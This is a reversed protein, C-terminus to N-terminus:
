KWMEELSVRIGQSSRQEIKKRLFDIKSGNKSFNKFEQVLISFQRNTETDMKYGTVSDHFMNIKSDRCIVKNQLHCMLCIITGIGWAGKWLHFDEYKQKFHKLFQQFEKAIDKHVALYWYDCIVAPKLLKDQFIENAITTRSMTWAAKGNYEPSYIGINPNDQLVQKTREYLSIYDEYGIDAFIINMYDYNDGEFRKFAEWTQGYLWCDDGLNVWGEREKDASNIVTCNINNSTFAKYINEAKKDVRNWNYIFNQIKIDKM